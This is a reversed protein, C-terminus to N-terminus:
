NSMEVELPLKPTLSKSRNMFKKKELDRQTNLYEERDLDKMVHYREIPKM